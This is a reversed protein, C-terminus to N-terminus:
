HHHDARESGCFDCTATATAPAAAAPAPAAAAPATAAAVAAPAAGDGLNCTLEGQNYLHLFESAHPEPWEGVDVSMEAPPPQRAIDFKPPGHEVYSTHFNAHAVHSGPTGLWEEYLKKVVPSEYSRRLVAREDVGYLATQRKKLIDKDKSRPQGGGGICGGPCAMVEVFHYNKEGDKVSKVLKKANGLGNAVAINVTLPETNHLPSEPHPSITISAEKVGDLGRVETFQLKELKEGTVVDYVTRLAAEMVGGTSGFLAAAGSGAGLFEDFEEDPLAAFDIGKDRLIQGLDKTTLVHDVERAGEATQMMIRDAEGQKKVCPMISVVRIDHASLGIKQSFYNKIVSGVIMHPSKTSSLHPIMEPAMQEVFGIWGPCCSTFMPLPARHPKGSLMGELRELLEFGEEMITMDAGALTDFVYDFGLARLAAVMKGTCATGPELGLEEGISVRVAPATQAIMVRKGKGLEALVMASHDVADDKAAPAPKIAPAPAEARCATRGRGWQGRGRGIPLLSRPQASARARLTPTPATQQLGTLAAATLAAAAMTPNIRHLHGLFALWAALFDPPLPSGLGGGGGSRAVAHPQLLLDCFELLLSVDRMTHQGPAATCAEAAASDVLAKGDRLWPLASIVSVPDLAASASAAAGGGRAKGGRGAPKSKAPAPASGPIHRQLVLAAARQQLAFGRPLGAPLSKVLKLKALPTAGLGAVCEALAPLAADWAGPAFAALLLPAAAELDAQLLRADTDLGLHAVAVLLDALPEPPLLAAAAAPGQTAAHRCLAAATQLVLKVAHIRKVGKREGEGQGAEDRQSAAAAAGGAGGGSGAAGRYGNFKLAALIDAATPLPGLAVARLASAYLPSGPPPLGYAADLALARLAPRDGLLCLLATFAAGAAASDASRALTAFLTGLTAGSASGSLLATHQAFGRQMGHRFMAAHAQPDEAALQAFLDSLGLAQQAAAAAQLYSGDLDADPEEAVEVPSLVEEVERFENHAALDSCQAALEQMREAAGEMQAAAVQAEAEDEEREAEVEAATEARREEEEQAAAWFLPPSAHVPCSMNRQLQQGRVEAWGHVKQKKDHALAMRVARKAVQQIQAFRAMKADLEAIGLPDMSEM